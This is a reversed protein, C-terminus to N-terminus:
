KHGFWAAEAFDLNHARDRWYIVDSQNSGTQNLAKSYLLSFFGTARPDADEMFARLHGVATGHEGRVMAEVAAIMWAEHRKTIRDFGGMPGNKIPVYRAFEIKLQLRILAITNERSRKENRRFQLALRVPLPLVSALHHLMEEDQAHSTAEAEQLRKFSGEMGDLARKVTSATLKGEAAYAPFEEEPMALTSRAGTILAGPVSIEYTIVELVADFSRRNLPTKVM